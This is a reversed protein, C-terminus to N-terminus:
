TLRGRVPRKKAAAKTSPDVTKKGTRKGTPKAAAAAATKAEARAGNGKHAAGDGEEVVAGLGGAVTVLVDGVSRAAKSAVWTAADISSDIVVNAMHGVALGTELTVDIVDDVVRGVMSSVDAGLVTGHEGLAKVSDGVAKNTEGVM